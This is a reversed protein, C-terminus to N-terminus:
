PKAALDLAKELVLDRGNKLDKITTHVEIDPKIGVGEFESGDPFFYRKVAVRLSMGNKFDYIFPLGSSGQTTQGVITARGSEKSPEVLDECASVCGGDVLLILQGRFANPSAAIVRSELASKSDGSLDSAVYPVGRSGDSENKTTQRAANAMGLCATTFEVWRRYPRDMLVRILREPPIGGPNNRVDIILVKSKHFQRVFDLAEEEQSPNFFSPIRIYATAGPRVWRGETKEPRRTLVTRNISVQRRDELTLTFQEPFLYPYLFLNSRQAALSSASIYRRERLFFAEVATGDILSVVDGPKLSELFSTQVVWKGELPRAYFGLPQNNSEDLWTDWFFTHGNHLQAVFEITALDFQRRDDASVMKDLYNRYLGDLDPAIEKGGRCLHLQLLSYTKSAVFVRDGVSLSASSTASLVILQGARCLLLIMCLLDPRM